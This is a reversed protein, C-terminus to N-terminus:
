RRGRAVVIQKRYRHIRSKKKKLLIRWILSTVCYKDKETQRNM